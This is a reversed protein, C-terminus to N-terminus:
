DKFYMLYYTIVKWRIGNLKKKLLINIHSVHSNLKTFFYFYFVFCLLLLLPSIFSLSFYSSSGCGGWEGGWGGGGGCGFLEESGGGCGSDMRRERKRKGKFKTNIIIRSSM